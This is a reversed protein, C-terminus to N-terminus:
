RIRAAEPYREAFGRAAASDHAQQGSKAKRIHNRTSFGLACWDRRQASRADMAPATNSSGGDLMQDLEALQDEPLKAMLYNLVLQMQEPTM